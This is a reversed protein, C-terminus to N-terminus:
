SEYNNMGYSDYGYNGYGYSGYGYADDLLRVRVAHTTALCSVVFLARSIM